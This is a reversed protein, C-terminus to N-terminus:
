RLKLSLNICLNLGTEFHTFAKPLYVNKFHDETFGHFADNRCDKLWMGLTHDYEEILAKELQFKHSGTPPGKFFVKVENGVLLSLRNNQSEEIFRKRLHKIKSGTSNQKFQRKSVLLESVADKSVLELARGLVGLSTMFYGFQWIDVAEIVDLVISEHLLRDYSEGHFSLVRALAPRLDYSGLQDEKIKAHGM